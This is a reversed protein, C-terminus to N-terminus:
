RYCFALCCEDVRPDDTKCWWWWGKVLFSLFVFLYSFHFIILLLHFFKILTLYLLLLFRNIMYFSMKTQSCFSGFSCLYSQGVPNLLLNLCLNELVYIMFVQLSCLVYNFSFSFSLPPFRFPYYFRGFATLQKSTNDGFLIKLEYIVVRGVLLLLESFGFWPGM